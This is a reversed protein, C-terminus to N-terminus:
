GQEYNYQNYLKIIEALDGNRIYLPTISPVVDNGFLSLLVVLDEIPRGSGCICRLSMDFDIVYVQGNFENPRCWLLQNLKSAPGLIMFDSDNGYIVDYDSSNHSLNRSAKLYKFIKHEGEGAISCGSIEINRNPYVLQMYEGLKKEFANLFSSGTTIYNTNIAEKPQKNSKLYRNVIAGIKRRKTIEEPMLFRRQRSVRVKSCPPVGDLALYTHEPDFFAILKVIYKCAHLIDENKQHSVQRYLIENVDIALSRINKKHYIQKDSIEYEEIAKGNRRKITVAFWPYFAGPVCM